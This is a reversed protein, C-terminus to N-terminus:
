EPNPLNLQWTVGFRDAVWGFKRSFPYEGLPMLVNGGQSLQEFVTDLEAESACNVYLSISPTFSFGHKVYSDSCMFSAGKITFSAHMVTGEAGAEGAGYRTISTVESHDFLSVYFNMAEEAQGEFMLFTSIEPQAYTM